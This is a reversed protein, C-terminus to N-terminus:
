QNRFLKRRAVLAFVGLVVALIILGAVNLTPVNRILLAINPFGNQSNSLLEDHIDGISNGKIHDYMKDQMWSPAQLPLGHGAQLGQDIDYNIFKAFNQFPYNYGTTLYFGYLRRLAM